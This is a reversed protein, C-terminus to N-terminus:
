AIFAVFIAKEFHFIHQYENELGCKKLVKYKKVFILLRNQDM